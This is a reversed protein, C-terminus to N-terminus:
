KEIGKVVTNTIEDAFVGLKEDGGNLTLQEIITPEGINGQDLWVAYKGKSDKTNIIIEDIHSNTLRNLWVGTINKSEGQDSDELAKMGNINGVGFKDIIIQGITHEKGTIYVGHRDSSKIHVKDISLGIPNNNWGHVQLAARSLSYKDSGSGLDEIVLNKFTLYKSGSYIDCGMSRLGASNKELDTKITLNDIDIDSCNRSFFKYYTTFDGKLSINTSENKEEGEIIYIPGGFESNDFTVSLGNLGKIYIGFKYYGKPFFLDIKEKSAMEFITQTTPKKSIPHLPDGGEIRIGYRRIDGIPFSDDIVYKLEEENIKEDIVEISENKSDNKSEEKCSVFLTFIITAFLIKYYNM